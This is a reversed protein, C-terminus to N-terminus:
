IQNILELTSKFNRLTDISLQRVFESHCEQYDYFFLGLAKKLDKSNTRDLIFKIDKPCLLDELKFNSKENYFHCKGQISEGFVNKYKKLGNKGGKDNDFIVRFDDSFSLSWAIMSTSNGSGLGAILKVDRNFDKYHDQLISFLYFDTIGEFLIIKGLFDNSANLQLANFVPSLAGRDNTAKYNGYNTLTIQAQLKEAIKISGLKILTPDLLYHSHTCYILNNTESIKKLNKLLEQQASAHLYSGPEDLLYISNHVSEKYKPNFKLKIMYNFFWQFGKSRQGINFTRQKNKFSKDRVKFELCHDTEDYKMVIELDGSDDALKNLGKRKMDKWEEIIERDLVDTIDSLLDDRIDGQDIQMFTQLPKEDQHEFSENGARNFIEEIINQWEVNSRGKIKGDFVYDPHFAVREPVRDTFDDFYLIFPANKIIYSIIRSRINKDEIVPYKLSYEKKGETFIRAVQFNESNKKLANLIEFIPHDSQVKLYKYLKEYDEENFNIHATIICETKHIGGYNNRFELHNGKNLKDQTKDFALIAQLISTKGSENVGIIPIIQHNLDIEIDDIARYKQIKFKTFKM